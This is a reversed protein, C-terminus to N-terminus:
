ECLAVSAASKRDIQRIEPRIASRGDTDAWPRMEGVVTAVNSRATFGSATAVSGEFGAIVTVGHLPLYCSCSNGETCSGRGPIATVRDIM